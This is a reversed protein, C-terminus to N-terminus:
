TMMNQPLQGYDLRTGVGPYLALWLGASRLWQVDALTDSASIFFIGMAVKFHM